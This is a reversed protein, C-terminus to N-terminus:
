RSPLWCARAWPSVRSSRMRYPVTNAIWNRRLLGNSRFSRRVSGSVSSGLRVVSAPAEDVEGGLM